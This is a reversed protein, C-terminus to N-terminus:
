CYAVSLCSVSTNTAAVTFLRGDACVCLTQVGSGGFSTLSPFSVVPASLVIGATSTLTIGTMANITVAGDTSTVSLDKASQLTLQQAVSEITLGEGNAHMNALNNTQVSGNVILGAASTVVTRASGLTTTNATLTVYPTNNYTAQITDVRFNVNGDQLTIASKSGAQMVIQQTSLLSLPNENFSTVSNTLAGQTLEASGEVRLVDSDFRVVGAGNSNIDVVRMIYVAVGINIIALCVLILVSAYLCYKRWGYIGVPNNIVDM